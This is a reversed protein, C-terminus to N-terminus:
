ALTADAEPLCVSTAMPDRCSHLIHAKPFMPALVGLRLFNGLMKDVYLGNVDANPLTSLYYERFTQIDEASLERACEPM